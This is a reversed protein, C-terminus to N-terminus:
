TCPEGEGGVDVGVLWPDIDEGLEAAAKREKRYHKAAIAHRAAQKADEIDYVVDRVLALADPTVTMKDKM